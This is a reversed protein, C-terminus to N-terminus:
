SRVEKGQQKFWEAMMRDLPDETSHYERQTYDQEPLLRGQRKPKPDRLRDIPVAQNVLRNVIAMVYRWSPMPALAAEELAYEYYQWPTGGLIALLLQKMIAMPMDRGITQAYQERLLEVRNRLFEEEMDHCFQVTTTGSSGSSSGSSTTTTCNKLPTQPFKRLNPVNTQRNQMPQSM